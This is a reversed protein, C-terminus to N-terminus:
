YFKKMREAQIKARDALESDPELTIVTEYEAHAKKFEMTTRYAEALEFHIYGSEPNRKVAKELKLIAEPVRGQAMYTKALGVLANPYNPQLQLAELFYQEARKYNKKGMYALGMNTLPYHPTLYLVDETVERYQSIATDWDKKAMYANGLNNRAPSYEPELELARKFHTIALDYKKKAKYVLGLDNQLFHDNPNIEEAKIFEKLAASYRRQHYYAEGLDRAAEAEKKKAPDIDAGAKKADNTTTCAALLFVAILVSGAFVLFNKKM